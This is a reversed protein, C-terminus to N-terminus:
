VSITFAYILLIHKTLLPIYLVGSMHRPDFPKMCCIIWTPEDSDGAASWFHKSAKVPTPTLRHLCSSRFM